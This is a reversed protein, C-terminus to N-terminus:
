QMARATASNTTMRTWWFRNPSRIVLSNDGSKTQKKRQLLPSKQCEMVCSCIGEADNPTGNMLPMIGLYFPSFSDESPSAIFSMFKAPSAPNITSWPQGIREFASM